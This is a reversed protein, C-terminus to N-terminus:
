EYTWGALDHWLDLNQREHISPSGCGVLGKHEAVNESPSQIHWTLIDKESEM